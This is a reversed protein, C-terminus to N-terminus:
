AAAAIPPRPEIIASDPRELSGMAVPASSTAAVARGFAEAVAIADPISRLLPQVRAMRWPRVHPWFIIYSVKESPALSLAIDGTGDANAKVSASVIKSFPINVTMPLAIGFRLVLRRTTITYVTTRAVGWSFLAVMGLAAVALGGARLIDIAAHEPGEPSGVVTAAYWTVLVAFYIALKRLHFARRALPLWRPAGQWVLTEGQPLRSPLGRVPETGHESMSEHSMSNRPMRNAAPNNIANM